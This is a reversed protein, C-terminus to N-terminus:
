GDCKPHPEDLDIVNTIGRIFGFRSDEPAVACRLCALRFKSHGPLGVPSTAPGRRVLGSLEPRRRDRVAHCYPPLIFPRAAKVFASGLLVPWSVALALLVSRLEHAGRPGAPSAAQTAAQQSKPRRTKKPDGYAPPAPAPNGMGHIVARRAMREQAPEMWPRGTEASPIRCASRTPSSGSMGLM